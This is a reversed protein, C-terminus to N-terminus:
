VQVRQAALRQRQREHRLVFYRPSEEPLPLVVPEKTVVIRDVLPALRGVGRQVAGSDKRHIAVKQRARILHQLRDVLRRDIRLLQGRQLGREFLAAAAVHGPNEIAISFRDRSEDPTCRGHRRERIGRLGSERRRIAVEVRQDVAVRPREGEARVEVTEARGLVDLRCEVRFYLVRRLGREFAVAAREDDDIRPRVLQERDDAVIRTASRLIERELTLVLGARDHLHERSEVGDVAADVDVRHKRILAVALQHDVATVEAVPQRLTVAIEGVEVFRQCFGAVNVKGVEAQAHARIADTFEHGGGTEVLLGVESEELHRESLEVAIREVSELSRVHGDTEFM